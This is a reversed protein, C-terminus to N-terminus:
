GSPIGFSRRRRLNHHLSLPNRELPRLDTRILAVSVMASPAMAEDLTPCLGVVVAGGRGSTRLIWPWSGITKSLLVSVGSL